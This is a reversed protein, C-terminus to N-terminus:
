EGVSYIYMHENHSIDSAEDPILAFWMSTKIQALITRLVNQGMLVIENVIDPSIYERKKLWLHMHNNDESRLLLM